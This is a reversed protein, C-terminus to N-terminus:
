SIATADRDIDTSLRSAAKTFIFSHATFFTTIVSLTPGPGKSGSTPSSKANVSLKMTRGALTSALAGQRGKAKQVFRLRLEHRGLRNSLGAHQDRKGSHESLPEDLHSLLDVAAQFVAVVAKDRHQQGERRHRQQPDFVDKAWPNSFMVKRVGFGYKNCNYFFMFEGNFAVFSTCEGENNVAINMNM